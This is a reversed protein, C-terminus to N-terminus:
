SITVENSLWFIFNLMNPIPAIEDKYRNSTIFLPTREILDTKFLDTFEEPTIQKVKYDKDTGM